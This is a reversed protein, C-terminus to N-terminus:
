KRKTDAASHTSAPAASRMHTVYWYVGFFILLTLVGGFL